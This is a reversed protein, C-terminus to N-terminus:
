PAGGGRHHRLGYHRIKATIIAITFAAFVLTLTSLSCAKVHVNKRQSVARAADRREKIVDREIKNIRGRPSLHNYNYTEVGNYQTNERSKDKPNILIPLYTLEDRKEKDLVTTDRSRLM